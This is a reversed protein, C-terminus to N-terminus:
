TFSRNPASIPCIAHIGTDCIRACIGSRYAGTSIAYQVWTLFAIVAVRVITIAAIGATLDFGAPLTWGWPLRAYGTAGVYRITTIRARYAITTIANDLRIQALLTVEAAQITHLQIGVPVWRVCATAMRAARTALNRGTEQSPHAPIGTANVGPLLAARQIGYRARALDVNLAAVRLDRNNALALKM